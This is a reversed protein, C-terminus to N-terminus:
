FYVGPWPTSWHRDTALQCSALSYALDAAADMQGTALLALRESPDAADTAPRAVVDPM